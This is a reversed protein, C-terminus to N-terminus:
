VAVNARTKSALELFHSTKRVYRRHCSFDGQFSNARIADWIYKYSLDSMRMRHSTRQSAKQGENPTDDTPQDTM